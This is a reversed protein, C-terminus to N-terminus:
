KRCKKERLHYMAWETDEDSPDDYDGTYVRQDKCNPCVVIRNM